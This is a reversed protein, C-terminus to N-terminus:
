EQPLRFHLSPQKRTEERHWVVRPKAGGTTGTHVLTHTHTHIYTLLHTSSHALSTVYAPLGLSPIASTGTGLANIKEAMTMRSVADAVRDELSLTYDCFPYSAFVSSKNLCPNILEPPTQPEPEPDGSCDVSFVSIRWVGGCSEKNNGNCKVNCSGDM